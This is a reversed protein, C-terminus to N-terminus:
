SNDGELIAFGDMIGKKCVTYLCIPSLIFQMIVGLSVAEINFEFSPRPRLRPLYRIPEINIEVPPSTTPNSSWAELRKSGKLGDLIVEHSIQALRRGGRISSGGLRFREYPSFGMPSILRPDASEMLALPCSTGCWLGSIFSCGSKGDWRFRDKRGPRCGYLRVILNQNAHTASIRAGAGIAEPWSNFGFNPSLRSESLALM